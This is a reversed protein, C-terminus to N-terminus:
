RPVNQLRATVSRRAWEPSTEIGEEDPFTRCGCTLGNMIFMNHSNKLRIKRSERMRQFGRCTQTFGRM